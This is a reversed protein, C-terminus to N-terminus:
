QKPKLDRSVILWGCLLSPSEIRALFEHVREVTPVDNIEKYYDEIKVLEINDPVTFTQTGKTCRDGCLRWKGLGWLYGPRKSYKCLKCEREVSSGPKLYDPTCEKLFRALSVWEAELGNRDGREYQKRQSEDSAVLVSGEKTDYHLPQETPVGVLHLTTSGSTLRHAALVSFTAATSSAGVPIILYPNM